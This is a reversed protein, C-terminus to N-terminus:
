IRTLREEFFEKVQLFNSERVLNDKSLAIGKKDFLYEINEVIEENSSSEDTLKHYENVAFWYWLLNCPYILNQNDILDPQYGYTTLTAENEKIIELNKKHNPFWRKTSNSDRCNMIVAYGIRTKVILEFMALEPQSLSRENTLVVIAYDAEELSRTANKTDEVNANFGPTDILCIGNLIQRALNIEVQFASTQSIGYFENGKLFEELSIPLLDGSESRIRVSLSEGWRYRTSIKTTALGNGPRAVFKDLLCNIFTSKGNQFCGVVSVKPLERFKDKADPGCKELYQEWTTM